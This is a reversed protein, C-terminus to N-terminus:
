RAVRRVDDAPAEAEVRDRFARVVRRRPHFPQAVLEPVDLEVAVVLALDAVLFQGREMTGHPVHLRREAAYARVVACDRAHQRGGVRTPARHPWSAVSLRYLECPRPKMVGDVLQPDEGVVVREPARPVEAAERAHERRRLPQVRRALARPPHVPARVRRRPYQHYGVMLSSFDCHQM